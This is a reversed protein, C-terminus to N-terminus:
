RKDKFFSYVTSKGQREAVLAAKRNNGNPSYGVHVWDPKNSDGFEWILQDFDLNDYIFYFIETNSPNNTADNDLDLAEGRSHQSTRSGGIASNLEESRYGSSVFIPNGFHSRIPQFIERALVKLSQLHEYSPSNDIGLRTATNSKVVESLSLNKSLEM